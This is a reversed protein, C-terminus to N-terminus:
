GSTADVVSVGTILLVCTHELSPQVRHWTSELVTLLMSASQAIVM